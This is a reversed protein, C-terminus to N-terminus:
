NNDVKQCKSCYHTGRGSVVARKIKTNCVFCPNNTRRYVNLMQQFKGHVGKSSSYTSVTTGGSEIAIKLIKRLSDLIIACDSLSLERGKKFPSIRSKFLTEDAYINGLGTIINQELLLTKIKKSSKSWNDFLIQPTIENSFPEYGLKNLPKTILFSDKSVIDFTGFRRTDHYILKNLGDLHFILLIHKMENTKVVKEFFYKGEMRLHSILIINDFVFLIYKGRRQVDIFTKGILKEKFINISSPNKLCKPAFVDINNITKGIILPKLTRVVTEVEPLEPM